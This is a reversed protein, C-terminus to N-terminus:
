PIEMVLLAFAQQEAADRALGGAIELIAAREAWRERRDEPWHAVDRWWLPEQGLGERVWTRLDVGAQLSSSDHRQEVRGNLRGSRGM